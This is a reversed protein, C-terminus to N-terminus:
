ARLRDLLRELADLAEPDDIFSPGANEGIGEIGSVLLSGNEFRWTIQSGPLRSRAEGVSTPGNIM